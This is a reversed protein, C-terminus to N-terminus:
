REGERLPETVEFGGKLRFRLRDSSDATVNEVLDTFLEAHFEDLQDPGQRLIDVTQRLAEMTENIDDSRLLKRRKARLQTLQADLAALKAACADVDLLGGARLKSIKYNQETAQAIARNIELMAPNERQVAVELAEMQDLAPRLIIGEHLRLKNYMRIFATYIDREWVPM